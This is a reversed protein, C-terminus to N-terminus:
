AFFLVLLTLVILATGMIWVARKLMADKTKGRNQEFFGNSGEGAITGLGTKTEMMTVCLVIVVCVAIILFGGIIGVISM